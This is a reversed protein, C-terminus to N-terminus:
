SGAEEQRHSGANPPIMWRLWTPLAARIADRLEDVAICMEVLARGFTGATVRLLAEASCVDAPLAFRSRLRGVLCDLNDGNAASM